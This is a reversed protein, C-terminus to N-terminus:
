RVAQRAFPYVLLWYYGISQSGLIQKQAVKVNTTYYLWPEVTAM